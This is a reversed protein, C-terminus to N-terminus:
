GRKNATMLFQEIQESWFHLIFEHAEQIRATNEDRVVLATDVLHAMDGGTKGLLGVTGVGKNRAIELARILNTSNGSTSIGIFVDGKRAIGALQRSFIHEFGYDNGIATLISTDTTFAIARYAERECEFRGVLEAAFHQADAASGGNGAVYVGGGQLLTSAFQEGAKIIDGEM